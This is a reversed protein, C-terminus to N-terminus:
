QVFGISMDASAAIFAGHGGTCHALCSEDPRAFERGCPLLVASHLRLNSIPLGSFLDRISACTHWRAGRYRSSGGGRGKALYLPSRRNLLRLAIRGIDNPRM